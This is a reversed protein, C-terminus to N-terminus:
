KLALVYAIWTDANQGRKTLRFVGNGEGTEEDTGEMYWRVQKFGALYLLESIEPPTWLRWHYVFANRMETGDDFGFHIKCGMQRSVPYFYAHEWIYIFGDCKREEEQEKEADSGGFADLILIGDKKLSRYVQSFYELMQKPECFIWYSFNFATVIDVKPKTIHLVNDLIPTIRKQQGEDLKALNNKEGWQLTKPDLDVCVSFHNKNRRVWECGLAFTGCFDERLLSPNKKRYKKYFSQVKGVEFEVNQVAKEYLLYPDTTSVM